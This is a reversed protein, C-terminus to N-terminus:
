SKRREWMQMAGFDRYGLREYLPFGAPTAGLFFTEAGRHRHADMVQSLLAKGVGKGQQEPLTAMAWIGVIRDHRTTSVTSVAKGEVRALHIEIGPVRATELPVARLASELPIQYGAALVAAMDRADDRTEVPQVVVGHKPHAAAAAAPCVM